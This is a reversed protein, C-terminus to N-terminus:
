KLLIPFLIPPTRAHFPNKNKKKKLGVIKFTNLILAQFVYKLVWLMGSM